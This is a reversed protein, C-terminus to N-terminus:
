IQEVFEFMNLFYEASEVVRMTAKIGCCKCPLTELTKSVGSSKVLFITGKKFVAVPTSTECKSKVLLGKWDSIKKPPKITKYLVEPLKEGKDIANKIYYEAKAKLEPSAEPFKKWLCELDTKVNQEGIEAYYFDGIEACYIGSNAIKNLEPTIKEFLENDM